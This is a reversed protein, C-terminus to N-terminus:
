RGERPHGITVPRFQDQRIEFKAQTPVGARPDPQPRVGAASVIASLASITAFLNKACQRAINTGSVPYGRLLLEFPAGIPSLLQLVPPTRLSKCCFRGLAAM